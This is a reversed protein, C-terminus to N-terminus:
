LSISSRLGTASKTNLIAFSRWTSSTCIKASRVPQKIPTRFNKWSLFSLNSRVTRSPTMTNANTRPMKKPYRSRRALRAQRANPTAARAAVPRKIPDFEPGTSRRTNTNTTIRQIRNMLAADDMNSNKDRREEASRDPLPLGGSGFAGNAGDNPNPSPIKAKRAIGAVKTTLLRFPLRLGLTGESIANSNGSNVLWESSSLVPTEHSKHLLEIVRSDIMELHQLKSMYLLWISKKGHVLKYLLECFLELDWCSPIAHYTNEDV